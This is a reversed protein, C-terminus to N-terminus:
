LKRAYLKESEEPGFLYFEKTGTIQVILLDNPTSHLPEVVGQSEVNLQLGDVRLNDEWELETSQKIEKRIDSDQLLASNRLIALKEGKDIIPPNDLQPYVIREVFDAFIIRKTKTQVEKSFKDFLLGNLTATVEVEQEALYLELHDLSWSRWKGEPNLASTFITPKWDRVDSAFSLFSSNTVELDKLSKFVHDRNRQEPPYSRVVKWPPRIRESVDKM